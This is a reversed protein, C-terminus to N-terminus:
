QSGPVAEKGHVGQDLKGLVERKKAQLDEELQQISCDERYGQCGQDKMALASFVLPHPKPLDADLDPHFALCPSEDSTEPDCRRQKSGTTAKGAEAGVGGGMLWRRRLIAWWQHPGVAM